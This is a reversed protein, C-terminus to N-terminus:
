LAIVVRHSKGTLAIVWWCRPRPAAFPGTRPSWIVIGGVTLPPRCRHATVDILYLSLGIPSRALQYHWTVSDGFAYSTVIYQGHCADNFVVLAAPLLRAAFDRSNFGRNGPCGRMECRQM